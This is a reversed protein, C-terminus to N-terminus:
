KRVKKKREPKTQLIHGRYNCTFACFNEGHRATGAFQSAMVSAADTVALLIRNQGSEVHPKFTYYCGQINLSITNYYGSDYKSKQSDYEKLMFNILEHAKEPKKKSLDGLIGRKYYTEVIPNFSPKNARGRTFPLAAAVSQGLDWGAGYNEKEEDAIREVKEFITKLTSSELGNFTMDQWKEQDVPSYSFTVEPSYTWTYKSGQTGAIYPKNEKAKLMVHDHAARYEPPITACGTVFALVLSSLIIKVKM